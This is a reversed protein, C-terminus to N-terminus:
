FRVHLTVQKVVIDQVNTRDFILQFRFANVGDDRLSTEGAPAFDGVYDRWSKITTPDVIRTTLDITGGQIRFGVSSGSGVVAEGVTPGFPSVFTMDDSYVVQNGDEVVHIEYRVFEPAFLSATDYWLSQSGVVTGLEVLTDVNQATAVPLTNGIDSPTLTGPAEVRIFGDAGNGGRTEVDIFSTDDVVGGLGGSADIMGRFGIAGGSQVILSGGSGGGGPAAPPAPQDAANGGRLEIASGAEMIFDRGVHFGIAGGGGAGAAGSYWPTQASAVQGGVGVTSWFPHSGGGGGGAGGVLFHDASSIGVPIPFLDFAAGAVGPMGFETNCTAGALGGSCSRLAMGPTGPTLLGGGGGGAAVQASYFGALGNFTISQWRGDTPYQPSGFGGTGTARDGGIGGPGYAHNALLQVTEGNQGDFLDDATLGDAAKGGDGGKGGGVAGDGGVQGDDLNRDHATMSPANIEIRGDIRTAGRVFFRPPNAGTFRLTANFPLEMRSFHFVGGDVVEDQGSVTIPEGSVPDRGTITISDTSWEYVGPSVLTGMTVDFEGLRGDGGLAGPTAEGNNWIGSSVNRDLQAGGAFTETVTQDTPGPDSTLFQFIQREARRGSLDTIRNTVEVEVCGARPLLITPQLIITTEETVPDIIAKPVGPIPLSPANPDCQLQGGVLSTERVRFLVPSTASTAGQFGSVDIIEDFQLRIEVNQPVGQLNAPSVLRASPARGNPDVPDRTVALNCTITSTLPDGSVSQLGGGGPGGPLTLIYNDGRRFGFVAAGGVIEASPVFTVVSGSVLLEGSPAAGTATQISVSGSNVSDPDLPRNFELRIQQNPAIETVACGVSTCGLSCAIVCFNSASAVCGVTAASSSSGGSSCSPLVSVLLLSVLTLIRSRMLM